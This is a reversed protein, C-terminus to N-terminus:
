RAAIQQADTPELGRPSFDHGQLNIGVLYEPGVEARVADIVRLVIRM